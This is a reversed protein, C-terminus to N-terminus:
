LPVSVEITMGKAREDCGSREETPTPPARPSAVMGRRLLARAEDCLGCHAQSALQAAHPGM